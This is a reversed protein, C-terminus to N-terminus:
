ATDASLNTLVIIALFVTSNGSPVSNEVDAFGFTELFVIKGSRAVAVQPDGVFTVPIESSAEILVYL